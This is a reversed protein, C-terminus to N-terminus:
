RPTLIKTGVAIRGNSDVAIKGFGYKNIGGPIRSVLSGDKAFVSLEWPNYFYYVDDKVDFNNFGGLNSIVVSQFIESYTNTAPSFRCVTKNTNLGPNFAHLNRDSTKSFKWNYSALPDITFQEITYLFNGLTDYASFSVSGDERFARSDTELFLTDNHEEFTRIETGPIQLTYRKEGDLNYCDILSDRLMTQFLIYDDRLIPELIRRVVAVERTHVYNIDSDYYDISIRYRMINPILTSYLIQLGGESDWRFCELTSNEPLAISDVDFSISSAPVVSLPGTKRSVTGNVSVSAVGYNLPQEIMRYDIYDVYSHEMVPKLNNLPNIPYQEATTSNYRYIYYGSIGPDECPEWDLTVLMRVSDYELTINQPACVESVPLVVTGIDTTDSAHVTVPVRRKEGSNELVCVFLLSYDGYPLNQMCFTGDSNVQLFRDSGFVLIFVNGPDSGNDLEVTGRIAGTSKLSRNSLDTTVTPDSVVVSDLRVANGDQDTAELSYVGAACSTISFIGDLTTQVVTKEPFTTKKAPTGISVIADSPQLMVLADAAPTVGDPKMLKGTIVPQKGSSGSEPVTGFECGFLFTCMATTIRLLSTLKM